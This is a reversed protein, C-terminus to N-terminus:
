CDRDGVHGHIIENGAYAHWLHIGRWAGSSNGDAVHVLILILASHRHTSELLGLEDADSRFL